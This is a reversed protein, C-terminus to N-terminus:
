FSEKFPFEHALFVRFGKIGEEILAQSARAQAAIDQLEDVDKQAFADLNLYSRLQDLRGSRDFSYRYITDAVEPQHISLQTHLVRVTEAIGLIAQSLTLTSEVLPGKAAEQEELTPRRAMVSVFTDLSQVFQGSEFSLRELEQFLAFARRRAKEPSTEARLADKVKDSLLPKIFDWLFKLPGFWEIVM